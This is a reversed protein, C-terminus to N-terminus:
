GRLDGRWTPPRPAPRKPVDAMYTPPRQAVDVCITPPGQAIDVFTTPPREAIDVFITPPRVGASPAPLDAAASRLTRCLGPRAADPGGLPVLSTVVLPELPTRSSRERTATSM